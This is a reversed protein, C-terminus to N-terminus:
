LQKRGSRLIPGKEREGMSTEVNKEMSAGGKRGYVAFRLLCSIAIRAKEAVGKFLSAAHEPMKLAM